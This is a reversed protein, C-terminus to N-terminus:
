EQFSELPEPAWLEEGPFLFRYRVYMKRSNILIAGKDERLALLANLEPLKKIPLFISYSSKSHKISTKADLAPWDKPWNISKDPAYECSVLQVEITSPMWPTGPISIEKEIILLTQRIEDPLTKWLEIERKILEVFRPDNKMSPDFRRPEKWDGYIKIKKAPTWIITENQCTVATLEYNSKAASLDFSILEECKKKADAVRRTTYLKKIQPWEGYAPKHYCIITGDDYLVFSPSGADPTDGSWAYYTAVVLLPKPEAAHCGLCLICFAVINRIM